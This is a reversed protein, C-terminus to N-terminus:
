TSTKAIILSRLSSLGALPSLDSVAACGGLSLSELAGLGALPSLDHIARAGSLSLETLAALGAVPLGAEALRELAPESLSYPIARYVAQNFVNQVFFLGVFCLLCALVPTAKLRCVAM